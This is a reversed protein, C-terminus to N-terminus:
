GRPRGSAPANRIDSGIARATAGAARLEAQTFAGFAERLRAESGWRDAIAACREREAAVADAVAAALQDASYPLPGEVPTHTGGAAHQQAELARAEDEIHEAWQKRQENGSM